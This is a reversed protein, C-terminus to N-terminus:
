IFAVLRAVMKRIWSRVILYLTIGLSDAAVDLLSMERYGLQGQVLEIFVGYAVLPLVLARLVPMRAGTQDLVATLVLFALAHNAKDSLHMTLDPPDSSFALSSIVAIAMVFVIRAMWRWRRESFHLM